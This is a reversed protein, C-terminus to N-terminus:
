FPAYVMVTVYAGAGNDSNEAFGAAITVIRRELTFQAALGSRLTQYRTNGLIGADLGLAIMPTLERLVVTRANYTGYVTAANAFATVIFHEWVRAYIEVAAKVGFRDGNAPNAPDPERLLQREAYGGIYTTVVISDFSQRRGVLAEAGFYRGENEGGPLADARYTYGGASGAIKFRIGDQDLDGFPAAVGGAWASFSGHAFDGGSFFFARGALWPEAMAPSGLAVFIAMAILRGGM